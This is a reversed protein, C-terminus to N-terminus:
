LQSVNQAEAENAAGPCGPLREGGGFVKLVYKPELPEPSGVKM